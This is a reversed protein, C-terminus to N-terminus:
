GGRGDQPPPPDRDAESPLIAGNRALVRHIKRATRALGALDGFNPREGAALRSEWEQLEGDLYELLKLSCGDCAGTCIRAEPADLPLTERIRRILLGMATRTDPKLCRDPARIGSPAREVM